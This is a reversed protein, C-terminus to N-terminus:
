HRCVCVSKSNCYGGKFRKALCHAACATNKVNWFSLLDCTARKQRQHAVPTTNQVEEVAATAIVDKLEVAQLAKAVPPPTTGLEEQAEQAITDEKLEIPLKKVVPQAIAVTMVVVLLTLCVISKM